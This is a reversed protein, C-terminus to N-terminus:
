SGRWAPNVDLHQLASTLDPALDLLLTDVQRPKIRSPLNATDSLIATPYAAAANLVKGMHNAREELDVAYPSLPISLVCPGALDPIFGASNARVPNSPSADTIPARIANIVYDAQAM